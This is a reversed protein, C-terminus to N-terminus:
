RAPRGRFVGSVTVNGNADRFFRLLQRNITVTLRFSGDDGLIATGTMPLRPTLTCNALDVRTGAATPRYTMSGALDCGSAMPTASDYRYNYDDTNLLNAEISGAFQSATQYSVATRLPDQVYPDAVAGDCTNIRTAPLTGNALYATIADDPCPLGRNFIVHPGGTQLYM